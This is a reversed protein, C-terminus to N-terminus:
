NRESFDCLELLHQLKLQSLILSGVMTCLGDLFIKPVLKQPERVGKKPNTSGCKTPAFVLFFPNSLAMFHTRCLWLITEVFCYFHTLFVFNPPKVTKLM